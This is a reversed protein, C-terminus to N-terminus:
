GTISIPEIGEVDEDFEDFEDLDYLDMEDDAGTDEESSDDMPFQIVKKTTDYSRTQYELTLTDQNKFLIALERFISLMKQPSAMIKERLIDPSIVLEGKNHQSAARIAPKDALSREILECCFQFSLVSGDSKGNIWKIALAAHVENVQQRIEAFEGTLPRKKVAILYDRLACVIMQTSLYALNSLESKLNQLNRAIM